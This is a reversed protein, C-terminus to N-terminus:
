NQASLYFHTKTDITRTLKASQRNTLTVIGEHVYMTCTYLAPIACMSYHYLSIDHMKNKSRKFYSKNYIPLFILISSNIKNITLNQKYTILM